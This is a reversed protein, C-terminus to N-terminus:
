SYKIYFMTDLSLPTIVTNNNSGVAMSTKGVDAVSETPCMNYNPYGGNNRASM